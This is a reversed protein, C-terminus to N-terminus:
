LFSAQNVIPMLSWSWQQKGKWSPMIYNLDGWM